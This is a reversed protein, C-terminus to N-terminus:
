MSCDPYSKLSTQLEPHLDAGQSWICVPTPPPLGFNCISTWKVNPWLVILSICVFCLCNSMTAICPYYQMQRVAIMAIFPIGLKVNVLNHPSLLLVLHVYFAITKNVRQFAFVISHLISLDNFFTMSFYIKFLNTVSAMRCLIYVFITQDWLWILRLWFIVDM